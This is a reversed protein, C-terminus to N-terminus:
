LYFLNETNLITMGVFTFFMCAYVWGWCMNEIYYKKTM